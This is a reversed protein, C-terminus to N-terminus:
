VRVRVYEPEPRNGQRTWRYVMGLVGAASVSQSAVLIPEASGWSVIAVPLLVAPLWLHRALHRTRRARVGVPNNKLTRM